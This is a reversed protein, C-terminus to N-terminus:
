KGWDHHKATRIRDVLAVQRTRKYPIRGEGKRKGPKWKKRLGMLQIFWRAEQKKNELYPLLKALITAAEQDWVKWTFSTRRQKTARRVAIKGCQFITKFRKVPSPFTNSISIHAVIRRQKKTKGDSAFICGEGDFFGAAWALELRLAM